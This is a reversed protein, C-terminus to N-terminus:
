DTEIRALVVVEGDSGVVVLGMLTLTRVRRPHLPSVPGVQGDDGKSQRPGNAVGTCWIPRMVAPGQVNWTM